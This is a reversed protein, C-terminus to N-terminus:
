AAAQAAAIIASTSNAYCVGNGPQSRALPRFETLRFRERAFRGANEFHRASLAHDEEAYHYLRRDRRAM